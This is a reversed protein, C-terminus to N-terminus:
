VAFAIEGIRTTLDFWGNESCALKSLFMKLSPHCVHAGNWLLSGYDNANGNTENVGHVAPHITPGLDFVSRLCASVCCHEYVWCTLRWFILDTVLCCGGKGNRANDECPNEFHELCSVLSQWSGCNCLAWNWWLATSFQFKLVNLLLLSYMNLSLDTSSYESFRGIRRTGRM